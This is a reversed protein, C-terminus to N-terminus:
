SRNFKNEIAEIMLASKIIKTYKINILFYSTLIIVGKTIAPMSAVSIEPM